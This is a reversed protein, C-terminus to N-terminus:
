EGRSHFLHVYRVQMQTTGLDFTIGAASQTVTSAKSGLISSLGLALADTTGLDLLAAETQTAVIASARRSQAKVPSLQEGQTPATNAASRRDAQRYIEQM